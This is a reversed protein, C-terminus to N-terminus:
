AASLIKAITQHDKDIAILYGRNGGMPSARGQEWAKIQDTTFGYTAAFVAQSLKTKARVSRVNMEAPIHLRAPKAEGRAIAIAENLGAAIKDFTKKTM